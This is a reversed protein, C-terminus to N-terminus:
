SDEQYVIGKFKDLCGRLCKTSVITDDVLGSAM